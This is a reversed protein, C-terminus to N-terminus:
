EFTSLFHFILFVLSFKGFWKDTALFIGSNRIFMIRFMEWMACKLIKRKQKPDFTGADKTHACIHMKTTKQKSIECTSVNSQFLKSKAKWGIQLSCETNCYFSPMNKTNTMICKFYSSIAFLLNLSVALHKKFTENMHRSLIRLYKFKNLYIANKTQLLSM